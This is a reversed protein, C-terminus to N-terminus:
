EQKGERDVPAILAELDEVPAEEKKPRGRPKKEEQVESGFENRIAYMTQLDAALQSTNGKMAQANTVNKSANQIVVALVRETNAIAIDLTRLTVGREILRDTPIMM